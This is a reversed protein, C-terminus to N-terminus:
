LSQPAAIRHLSDEQITPPGQVSPHEPCTEHIFETKEKVGTHDPTSRRQDDSVKLPVIRGHCREPEKGTLLEVRVDEPEAVFHAWSVHKRGEPLSPVTESLLADLARLLQRVREVDDTASSRLLERRHREVHLIRESLWARREWARQLRDRLRPPLKSGDWLRIEDVRELFDGRLQLRVGQTALLGNIRNTVRRQRPRRGVGTGMTLTWRLDDLEFAVHLVVEGPRDEIRHTTGTAM